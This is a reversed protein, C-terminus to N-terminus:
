RKRLWGVFGLLPVLMMALSSPEPVTETFFQFSPSIWLAEGTHNSPPTPVDYAAVCGDSECSYISMGAWVSGTFTGNSLTPGILIDVEDYGSNYLPTWYDNLVGEGSLDGFFGASSFSFSGPVIYGPNGRYGNVPMDYKFTADIIDTCNSSCPQTATFVASMNVTYITDAWSFASGLVLLAAIIRLARMKEEPSSLRSMSSRIETSIRYKKKLAWNPFSDTVIITMKSEAHASVIIQNEDVGRYHRYKLATVNCLTAFDHM